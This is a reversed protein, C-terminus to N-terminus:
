GGPRALVPEEGQERHPVAPGDAAEGGCPVGVGPQGRDEDVVAVRAAGADGLLAVPAGEIVQPGGAGGDGGTRALGAAGGADLGGLAAVAVVGQVLRAGDPQQVLQQGVQARD